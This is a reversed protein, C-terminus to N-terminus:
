KLHTLIYAIVDITWGNGLMKYLQTDSIDSNILNELFIKPITQLRGCETPTLRRINGAVSVINQGSGDERARAPITAGKGSVVERFGKGDNHTRLTGSIILDSKHACLAPSIGDVDYVRNQQYPQKGGSEKSPNLQMVLNDKQVSTLCNTKGDNRPELQQENNEGRGRQAVILLNDKNIATTLTGMKEYDINSIEKAQFPTFDKGNAMSEKRIAKAEETRGFKIAGVMEIANTNGTDLCYTKGDNRSLPVTGGKGTKSSRPMTNHIIYDTSLNQKVNATATICASKQFGDLQKFDTGRKESHRNLWDLMKGSLFYKEDLDTELIDKLLIGKDKPQPISCVLDGFLGNQVSAINTWYLRQRNQASLLASNIKIPNIGIARTLIKQWKEGMLVNELLFKINPNIVRLEELIRMYEWFLYSQGEFEFNQIKLELYHSLTLIEVDCKTAMGKRKGAFSFSQCPSGGGLFDIFGLDSGKVNRVDGIQITNPFNIMAAKIPFKEIESAFYETPIIGIQHFAMQLCSMGDFLSLIRM